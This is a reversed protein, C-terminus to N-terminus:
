YLGAPEGLSSRAPHALPTVNRADRQRRKGRVRTPSAHRDSQSRRGHSATSPADPVSAALGLAGSPDCDMFTTPPRDGHRVKPVDGSPDAPLQFPVRCLFPEGVALPRVVMQVPLTPFAILQRFRSGLIYGGRFRHRGPYIGSHGERGEAGPEVMAKRLDGVGGAQREEDGPRHPRPHREIVQPLSTPIEGSVKASTSLASVALRCFM